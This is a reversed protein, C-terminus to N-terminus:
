IDGFFLEGLLLSNLTFFITVKNDPDMLIGCGFVNGQVNQEPGAGVSVQTYEYEGYHGNTSITAIVYYSEGVCGSFVFGGHLFGLAFRIFLNQNIIQIPCTISSRCQGM